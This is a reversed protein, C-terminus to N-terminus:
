YGVCLLAGKTRLPVLVTSPVLSCVAAVTQVSGGPGLMAAWENQRLQEVLVPALDFTQCDIDFISLSFNM